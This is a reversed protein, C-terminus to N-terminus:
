DGIRQQFELNTCVYICIIDLSPRLTSTNFHSHSPVASINVCLEFVRVKSAEGAGDVAEVAPTKAAGAIPMSAGEEHRATATGDDVPSSGKQVVDADADNQLTSTAPPPVDVVPSGNPENESCKDGVVAVAQKVQSDGAEAQPGERSIGIAANGAVAVLKPAVGSSTNIVGGAGASAALGASPPSAVAVANAGSGNDAASAGDMEGM